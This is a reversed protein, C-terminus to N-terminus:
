TIAPTLRPVRRRDIRVPGSRRALPLPRRRVPRRPPCRAAIREFAAAADAFWPEGQRLNVIERRMGTDPELGVARGSPTVLVLRSVRGPHRLAYQVAPLCILPDGVGRVHYALQTGDFAHFAPV